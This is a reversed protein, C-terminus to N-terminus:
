DLWIWGIIPTQQLNLEQLLRDLHSQEISGPSALLLQKDFKAAELSTRCIAINANSAQKLIDRIRNIQSIQIDGLPLIAISGSQINNLGLLRLGDNWTHAQNSSLELLLQTPLLVKFQEKDFIKGSRRDAILAAACGLIMGSALGLALNLVPRPSVPRELLMPTSIMQWPQSTRAQELRLSLLANEMSDLTSQDRNAKRELEQHRILISQAQDKSIAQKGPYAISGFASSEIYRRVADRERKLAIISPDNTTFTQQQRILEQNLQALAALPDGGHPKISTPRISSGSYGSMNLAAGRSNPPNLLKSIDYGGVGGGDTSNSSIGYTLGFSNLARFSTDSRRRYIQAQEEAYKLGNTLSENREKTSYHQYTDSLSRLVPLILSQNTDRYSISLVSTGKQLNISLNSAWSRFSYGTMDEGLAAKRARVEDFVPGLVSASELIKVETELDGRGGTPNLGSLNALMSNSSFASSLNNGQEKSSLVIEFRGEWTTKSLSTTLAAALGGLASGALIFPWRRGLAALLQKLNLEEAEPAQAHAASM